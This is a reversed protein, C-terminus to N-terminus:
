GSMLCFRSPACLPSNCYASDFVVGDRALADLHPMRIPSRADHLPLLPAAMQDAMIFLINPRTQSM